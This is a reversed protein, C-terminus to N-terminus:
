IKLKQLHGYAVVLVDIVGDLTEKLDNAEIGDRLEKVESEFDRTSGLFRTQNSKIKEQLQILITAAENSNM